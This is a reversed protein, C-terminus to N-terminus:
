LEHGPLRAYICLALQYAKKPNQQHLGMSVIIKGKWDVLVIDLENRSAESCGFSTLHHQSV